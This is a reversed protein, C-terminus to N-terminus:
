AEKEALAKLADEIIQSLTSKDSLSKFRKQYLAEILKEAEVSLYFTRKHKTEMYKRSLSITIM